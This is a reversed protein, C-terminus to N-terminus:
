VPRQLLWLRYYCYYLDILNRFFLHLPLLLVLVWFSSGSARPELEQASGRLVGREGQVTSLSISSGKMLEDNRWKMLGGVPGRRGNVLSRGRTGAWSLYVGVARFWVVAGVM